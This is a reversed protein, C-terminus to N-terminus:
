LRFGLQSYVQRTFVLPKGQYLLIVQFVPGKVGAGKGTDVPKIREEDHSRNEVDVLRSRQLKGPVVHGAQRRHRQLRELEKSM